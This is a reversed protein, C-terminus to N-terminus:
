GSSKHSAISSKLDLLTSSFSSLDESSYAAFIYPHLSGCDVEITREDVLTIKQISEIDVVGIPTHGIYYLRTDDIRVEKKKWHTTGLAGGRGRKKMTKTFRYSMGDLARRQARTGDKLM